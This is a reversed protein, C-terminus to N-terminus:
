RAKNRLEHIKSRKGWMNLKNLNKQVKALLDQVWTEDQTHRRSVGDHCVDALIEMSCHFSPNNVTYVILLIRGTHPLYFFSFLFFAFPLIYLLSKIYAHIISIELRDGAKVSWFGRNVDCVRIIVRFTSM